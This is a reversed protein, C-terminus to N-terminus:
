GIIEAEELLDPHLRSEDLIELGVLWGDRLDLAVVRGRAPVSGASGSSESVSGTIAAAARARAAESGSALRRARRQNGGEIVAGDVAAPSGFAHRGGVGATTEV